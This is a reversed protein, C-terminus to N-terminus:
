SFADLRVAIPSAFISLRTRSPGLQGASCNSAVHLSSPLFGELNFGFSMKPELIRIRLGWELRPRWEECRM